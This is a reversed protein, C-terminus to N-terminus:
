PKTEFGQDFELRAAVLRCTSAAVTESILPFSLALGPGKKQVAGSDSSCRLQICDSRETLAVRARSM